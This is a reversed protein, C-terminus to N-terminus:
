RFSKIWNILSDHYVNDMVDKRMQDTIQGNKGMIALIAEQLGAIKGKEFAETYATDAGAVNGGAAAPKKKESQDATKQETRTEAADKKDPKNM